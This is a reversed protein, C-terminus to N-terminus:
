TFTGDFEEAYCTEIRLGNKEEDWGHNVPSDLNMAFVNAYRHMHAVYNAREAHLQLNTKCPDLCSVSILLKEMKKSKRVFLKTACDM